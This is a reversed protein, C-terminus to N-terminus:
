EAASCFQPICLSGVQAFLGLVEAGLIPIIAYGRGGARDEERESWGMVMRSWYGPFLACTCM